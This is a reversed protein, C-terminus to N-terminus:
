RKDWDKLFADCPFSNKHCIVFEKAGEMTGRNMAIVDNETHRNNRVRRNCIVVAIESSIPFTVVRIDGQKQAFVPSDSTIFPQNRTTRNFTWNWKILRNRLSATWILIAGFVSPKMFENKSQPTYEQGTTSCWIQVWDELEAIDDVPLNDFYEDLTENVMSPIRAATIGMFMAIKEREIDTLKEPITAAKKMIPAIPTEIHDALFKEFHDTKEGFDDFMSYLHPFWGIGKPTIRDWKRTKRKYVFLDKGFM